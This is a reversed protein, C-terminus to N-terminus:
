PALPVPRVRVAGSANLWEALKGNLLRPVPILKVGAVVKECELLSGTCASPPPIVSSRGSALLWAILVGTRSARTVVAPYWPFGAGSWHNPPGARDAFAPLM